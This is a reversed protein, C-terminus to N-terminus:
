FWQQATSVNYVLVKAILVAVLAAAFFFLADKSGM